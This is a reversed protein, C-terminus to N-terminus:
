GRWMGAFMVSIAGFLGIILWLLGQVIYLPVINVVLVIIGPFVGGINGILKSINGFDVVNPNIPTHCATTVTIYNTKTEFDAGGGATENVYHIVTYESTSSGLSVTYTHSVNLGTSTGGDGFTWNQNNFPGNTSLDVFAVTLPSCGSSPTGNFNAVPAAALAPMIALAVILLGALTAARANM